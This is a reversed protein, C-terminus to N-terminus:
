VGLAALICVSGQDKLQVDTCVHMHVVPKAVTVCVCVCKSVCVCM